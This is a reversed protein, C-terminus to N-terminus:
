KYLIPEGTYVAEFDSANLSKLANLAEDDWRTDHTGSVYMDSGIDAVILGYKKMAKLIVQMDKDYKSIDFSAKLRLRLGMPPYNADTYKGGSHTAPLIYSKQIKSLTVRFAHNIEGKQYVEDWRVLGPLIPLGAADASTWGQPRQENKDLHWIAGSGAHWSGDAQKQVAFLEYLTNTDKQLIILHRDSGGEIIPKDPIPYPGKDSEDDYDFSVHVKPQASSVINYPIGIPSGEWFTGFDPHLRKSGITKMYENSKPHVKLTDVPTNWLNDSPFLKIGELDPISYSQTPTNSEPAKGIYVSNTKPDWVVEKGLAKSIARAPLYVTGDYAFPEVPQQIANVLNVKNGDVFVKIDNFAVNIAKSVPQATLVSTLCVAALFGAAFGKIHKKM